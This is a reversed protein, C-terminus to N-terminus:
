YFPTLDIGFTLQGWVNKYRPTTSTGDGNNNTFDMGVRAGFIFHTVNIDVGGTFSLINKQINENKFEEEVDNNYIDSTFTNQQKVLYSYQPGVLVTLLRNPKIAVLLPIAIYSSTRTFSYDMGIVKGSGQFGKQSFLIEPQFGIFTGFPIAVFAGLALGFKADADFEEGESNYVNSYNSGMKVGIHFVERSDTSAANSVYVMSVIAILM